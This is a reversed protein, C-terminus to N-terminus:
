GATRISNVTRIYDTLKRKQQELEAITGDLSRIQAKLAQPKRALWAPVPISRHKAKEIEANTADLQSKLRNHEPVVRGLEPDISQSIYSQAQEGIQLCTSVISDIVSEFRTLAAIRRLRKIPRIASLAKDVRMSVLDYGDLTEVFVGDDPDILRKALEGVDRRDSIAPALEKVIHSRVLGKKVILQLGTSEYRGLAKDLLECIRPNTVIREADWDGRISLIAEAIADCAGEEDPTLELIMSEFGENPSLANTSGSTLADFRELTTIQLFTDTNAVITLLSSLDALSKRFYKDVFGAEGMRRFESQLRVADNFCAEFSEEEVEYNFTHDSFGDQKAGHYFIMLPANIARVGRYSLTSWFYGSRGYGFNSEMSLQLGCRRELDLKYSCYGRRRHSYAKISKTSEYSGYLKKLVCAWYYEGIRQVICENGPSITYDLEASGYAASFNSCFSKADFIEPLVQRAREVYAGFAREYEELAALLHPRLGSAQNYAWELELYDPEELSPKCADIAEHAVEFGRILTSRSALLHVGSPYHWDGHASSRSPTSHDVDIGLAQYVDLATDRFHGVVSRVDDGRVGAVGDVLPMIDDLLRETQSEEWAKMGEGLERLRGLVEYDYNIPRFATQLAGDSRREIVCMEDRTIGHRGREYLSSM